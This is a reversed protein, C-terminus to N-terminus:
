GSTRYFFDFLFCHHFSFHSRCKFILVDVHIRPGSLMHESYMTQLTKGVFKKTIEMSHINDPDPIPILSDIRVLFPWREVLQKQLDEFIKLALCSSASGLSIVYKTQSETPQPFAQLFYNSNDVVIGEDLQAQYDQYNWLVNFFLCFM